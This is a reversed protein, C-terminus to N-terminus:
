SNNLLIFLGGTRLAQPPHTTLLTLSHLTNRHTRGSLRDPDPFHFRHAGTGHYVVMHSQIISM